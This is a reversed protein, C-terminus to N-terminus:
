STGLKRLSASHSSSIAAVCDLWNGGIGYPALFLIKVPVLHAAAPSGM